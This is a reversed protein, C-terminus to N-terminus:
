GRRFADPAHPAIMVRSRGDGVRVMGMRLRRLECVRMIINACRAFIMAIFIEYTRKQFNKRRIIGEFALWVRLDGGGMREVCFVADRKSWVVGCDRRTRGDRRGRGGLVVGFADVDGHAAM